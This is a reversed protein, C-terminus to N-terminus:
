SDEEDDEDFVYFKAVETLVKNQLSRTKVGVHVLFERDIIGQGGADLAISFAAGSNVGINELKSCLKIRPDNEYAKDTESTRKSKRNVRRSRIARKRSYTEKLSFHRIRKEFGKHRLQLCQIEDFSTSRLWRNETVLNEFAKEDDNGSAFGIVQLNEVDPVSSASDPQFTHGENTFFIYSNM